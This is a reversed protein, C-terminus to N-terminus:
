DCKDSCVSICFIFKCSVKIECNFGIVVKINWLCHQNNNQKKVAM